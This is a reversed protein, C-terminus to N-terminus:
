FLSDDIEIEDVGWFIDLTTIIKDNHYPIV